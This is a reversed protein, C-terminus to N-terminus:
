GLGEKGQQLTTYFRGDWQSEPVHSDSSSLPHPFLCQDLCPIAETLPMQLLPLPLESGAMNFTESSGLECTSLNLTDTELLNSLISSIIEEDMPLEEPVDLTGSTGWGLRPGLHTDEVPRESWLPTGLTGQPIRKTYQSFIEALSHMQEALMSIANKDPDSSPGMAPFMDTSPTGESLPSCDVSPSSDSFFVSEPPCLVHPSLSPLRDVSDPCSINKHWGAPFLPIETPQPSQQTPIDANAGVRPFSTPLRLIAPPMWEEYSDLLSCPNYKLMDDRFTEPPFCGAEKPQTQNDTEQAYHSMTPTVPFTDRHQTEHNQIYLAEEESLIHNTCTILDAGKGSEKLAVVQVWAWSLDKCLVRVVAQQREAGCALTRHLEAGRGIDEPHLFSYWSQGILESTQYGLHYIVRETVEAIKMDLTHQSQFSSNQSTGDGDEALHGVPTCFAIFTLAPCTSALEPNLMLFRGRMAMTRNTGYKARFTRLTCMETVFKIETGPYQQAFCLKEQVDKSATSSLLDFISDGHALLEVVSFGLFHSVNESVYALKGNATLALIFGPLSLLLEPDIVPAADLAPAPGVMDPTGENDAQAGKFFRAVTHNDAFRINIPAATDVLKNKVQRFCSLRECTSAFWLWPTCIPSASRRRSRSPCCPVCFRCSRMSRIEVLRLLVKRQGTLVLLESLHTLQAVM